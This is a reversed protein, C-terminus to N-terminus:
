VPVSLSIFLSNVSSCSFLSINSLYKSPLLLEITSILAFVILIGSWKKTLPSFSLYTWTPVADDARPIVVVVKTPAAFVVKKGPSFIKATLTSSLLILIADLASFASLDIGCTTSNSLTPIPVDWLNIEVLWFAFTSTAISLIIWDGTTDVDTVVWRESRNCLVSLINNKLPIVDNKPDSKIWTPFSIIFIWPTPIPLVLAILTM